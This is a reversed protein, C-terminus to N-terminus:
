NMIHNVVDPDSAEPGGWASGILYGGEVKALFIPDNLVRLEPAPSDSSEEIVKYDETITAGETNICSVDAVISIDLAVDEEILKQIQQGLGHTYDVIVGCFKPIDSLIDLKVSMTVELNTSALIRSSDLSIMDSSLALAVKDSIMTLVGRRSLELILKKRTADISYEYRRLYEKGQKSRRRVEETVARSIRDDYASYGYRSSPINLGSFMGLPRYEVVTNFYYDVLASTSIDSVPIKDIKGLDKKRVLDKHEECFEMFRKIEVRNKYPISGTYRDIPAHLLTYKKCIEVLKEETIFRYTSLMKYKEVLNQLKRAKEQKEPSLLVAEKFNSFGLSKMIEISDKDETYKKNIITQAEKLLNDEAISFESHIEQIIENM